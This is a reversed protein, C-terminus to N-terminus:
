GSQRFAAIEEPSLLMGTDIAAFMPTDSEPPLPASSLLAVYRQLVSDVFREVDSTSAIARPEIQPPTQGEIVGEIHAVSCLTEEGLRWTLSCEGSSGVLQEDIRSIRKILLEGIPRQEVSLADMFSEKGRAAAQAHRVFSLALPVLYAREGRSSSLRRLELVRLGRADLGSLRAVLHESFSEGVLAIIPSLSVRLRPTRLHQALVSRNREFFVLTDLASLVPGDGDSECALAFVARGSADVGVWDVCHGGGLDLDRDVWEVDPFADQLAAVWPPPAGSAPGGQSGGGAPM